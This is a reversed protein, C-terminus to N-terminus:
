TSDWLYEQAAKFVVWCESGQFDVSQNVGLAFIGIVQEMEVPSPPVPGRILLLLNFSM